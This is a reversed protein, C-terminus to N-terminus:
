NTNGAHTHKSSQKSETELKVKDLIFAESSSITMCLYLIDTSLGRFSTGLISVRLIAMSLKHNGKCHVGRRKRIAMRNAPFDNTNVVHYINGAVV